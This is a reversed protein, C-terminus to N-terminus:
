KELESFIKKKIENPVDVITVTTIKLIQKAM